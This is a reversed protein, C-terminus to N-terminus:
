ISITKGPRAPHGTKHSHSGSNGSAAQSRHSLHIGPPGTWEFRIAEQGCARTLRRQLRGAPVSRRWLLLWVVLCGGRLKGCMEQPLVVGRLRWADAAGRVQGDARGLGAPPVRVQLLRAVIPLGHIVHLVLLLAPLAALLAARWQTRCVGAPLATPRAVICLTRLLLQRVPVQRQCLVRSAAQAVQEAGAGRWAVRAASGRSM